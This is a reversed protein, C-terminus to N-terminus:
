FPISEAAVIRAVELAGSKGPKATIRVKEPLPLPEIKTLDGTQPQWSEVEIWLTKATEDMAKVLAKRGAYWVVLRPTNFRIIRKKNDDNPSGYEYYNATTAIMDWNQETATELIDAKAADLNIYDKWSVKGLRKLVADPTLEFGDLLRKALTDMQAPDDAWHLKGNAKSEAPKNFAAKVALEAERGKEFASLPKGLLKNVDSQTLAHKEAFYRYFAEVKAPDDYWVGPQPTAPSKEAAHGNGNAPKSLQADEVIDAEIVDGRVTGFNPMDDLDQTFFESANCGILTAAILARKQAMKDITNVLSFVDDNAVKGASQGTIAPDNEKFTAGCGGTKQWCYWGAGAEKSKRINEKGCNPCTRQANRWRYKDEMSNCSGIGTAILKGSDIHILECCYQYHFLPKDTDWLEVKNILKFVPAFGFASCLREAGPKLLVEKEREVEKGDPLKVKVKGTGPIM